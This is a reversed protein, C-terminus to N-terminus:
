KRHPLLKERLSAFDTSAAPAVVAAQAEDAADKTHVPPSATSGSAEDTPTLWHKVREEGSFYDAWEPLTQPCFLFRDPSNEDWPKGYGYFEAVVAPDRLEEIPDFPVITYETDLGAGRREILYDRDCLTGYMRFYGILPKWFNNGQQIIGFTRAKFQEDKFTIDEIVDVIEFGGGDRPQQDRLVALGVTQTRPKREVLQRTKFDQQWGLGPTPSAYKAVLDGKKPDILFNKTRGDNAMIFQYFEATIVDDTLFRVVKRDGDKWNFYTLSGGSFGRSKSDEIHQQLALLGTQM